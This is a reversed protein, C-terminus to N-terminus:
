VSAIKCDALTPNIFDILKFSKDTEKGQNAGIVLDLRTVEDSSKYGCSQATYKLGMEVELSGFKASYVIFAEHTAEVSSKLTISNNDLKL